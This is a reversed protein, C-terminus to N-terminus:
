PNLIEASDVIVDDIYLHYSAPTDSSSFYVRDIFSVPNRLAAGQLCLTGNLYIDALDSGPNIIAEVQHWTNAPIAGLVIDSGGSQRYLLNGAGDTVLEIAASDGALVKMAHGDVLGNERFEWSVTVPNSQPVFSKWLSPYGSTNGDWLQICKDTASTIERVAVNTSSDLKYTWSEPRSNTALEDFTEHLAPTLNSIAIDNVYLHYTYSEDSTGFLIGDFYNASTQFTAGSLRRVGDVYVDAHGKAPDVVLDVDYWAGTPVAQLVHDGNADRYVLNGSLTLLEIAADNGSLLVMHHGEGLLSGGGTQKFSFHTNFPATLQPISRWAEIKGLPNGDWFQMSKDATSPTERVFVNTTSDNDVSWGTPWSGTTMTDYTENFIVDGLTPQHYGTGYDSPKVLNFANAPNGVIYAIDDYFIERTENTDYHTHDWCYQGWKVYAGHTMGEDTNWAGNGLNIGTYEVTPASEPAGDYWALLIGTENRSLKCYLIFDHWEGKTLSPAITSYVTVTKGGNGNGYAGELILAGTAEVGVTITINTAPLSSHWAHIQGLVVAKGPTPFSEPAYLSFGFWGEGTIRELHFGSSGEVGKSSRNGNYFESNWVLRHVKNGSRPSFGIPTIIESINGSIVEVNFPSLSVDEFDEDIIQANAYIFSLAFSLSLRLIAPIYKM